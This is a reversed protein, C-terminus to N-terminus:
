DGGPVPISFVRISMIINMALLLATVTLKKVSTASRM